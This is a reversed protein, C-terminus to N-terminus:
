FEVEFKKNVDFRFRERDGTFNATIKIPMMNRRKKITVAAYLPRDEPEVVIPVLKGTFM